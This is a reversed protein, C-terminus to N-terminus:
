AEGGVEEPEFLSCSVLDSDEGTIGEGTSGLLTKVPFIPEPAGDLGAGLGPIPKALGILGDTDEGITPVDYGEEDPGITPVDFGELPYTEDM